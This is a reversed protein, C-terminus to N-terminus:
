TCTTFTPTLTLKIMNSIGAFAHSLDARATEIELLNGLALTAEKAADCSMDSVSVPEAESVDYKQMLTSVLMGQTTIPLILEKYDEYEGGLVIKHLTMLQKQVTRLHSEEESTLAVSGYGGETTLLCEEAICNEQTFAINRRKGVAYEYTQNLVDGFSGNFENSLVERTLSTSSANSSFDRPALHNKAEFLWQSMMVNAIVSIALLLYVGGGSQNKKM